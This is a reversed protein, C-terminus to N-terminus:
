KGVGATIGRVLARQGALFVAVMPVLAIVVGAALQPTNTNYQGALLATAPVLLRLAPDQVIVIALLLDSWCWIFALVALTALAPRSLPLLVRFFVAADSAGDVKAAEIVERPMQDYYAYMLYLGFSANWAAYVFALAVLNDTLNWGNLQVFIPLVLVPPPIAMTGILCVRLARSWRGRYLTFWYAGTACIAVTILVALIVTVASHWAASGLHAFNWAESFNKTTPSAPLGVANSNFERLPKLATYLLFVFPYLFPLTLVVMLATRFRSPRHRKM